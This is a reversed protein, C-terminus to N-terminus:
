LSGFKIAMLIAPECSLPGLDVDYVYELWSVIYRIPGQILNIRNSYPEVFKFYQNIHVPRASSSRCSLYIAIHLISQMEWVM